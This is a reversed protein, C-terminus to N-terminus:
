NTLILEFQTLAVRFATHNTDYYSFLPYLSVPVYPSPLWIFVSACILSLSDWALFHILGGFGPLPLSPSKELVKPFLMAKSCRAKPTLAELVTLSYIQKKLGGLKHFNM